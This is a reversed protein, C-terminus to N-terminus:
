CHLNKMDNSLVGNVNETTICDIGLLKRQSNFNDVNRRMIDVCPGLLREFAYIDLVACKTGEMLSYVSAVRPRKLVLALEGFYQGRKLTIIEKENDSNKQQVKVTVEGHMIFYMKEAIEGERVICENKTFRIEGLADTLNMLENETLSDLITVGKLLDEFAKRKKATATVVIKRFTKQDLGWLIGTTKAVITANRPCNYLLALEGFYGKGNLVVVQKDTKEIHFVGKEIIYFNDGDDGERIIIEEKKVRREFMASYLVRQQEVDCNHFFIIDKAVEDLGALQADTKPHIVVDDDDDLKPDYSEAAVAQRRKISPTRQEEDIQIVEMM